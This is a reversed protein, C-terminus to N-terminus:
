PAPNWRQGDGFTVQHLTVTVKKTLTPVNFARCDVVRTTEGGVLNGSTLTSHTRTWQGLNRGFGDWYTFTMNIEKVPRSSRNQIRIKATRLSEVEESGFGVFEADVPPGSPTAQAAVESMAPASSLRPRAGAVGPGANQLALDLDRVTFATALRFVAGEAAAKIKGVFPPMSSPNQRAGVQMMGVLGQIGGALQSAATADACGLDLTIDVQSVGFKLCLIAERVGDMSQMLAGLIANASAGAAGAGGLGKTAEKPVSLYLWVQGRRSLTENIQSRLKGETRGLLFNQLNESRGLGFVVGEKGSGAAFSLTFPLKKEGLVESPVDFYEAAGVRRRSKEIQARVGPKEKDIAELAQRILDSADRAQVLRAAVIFGSNPDFQGSQLDNFVNEGEVAVAIEAMNTGEFEPIMQATRLSRKQAEQVSRLQEVFPEAKDAIAKWIASQSAGQFDAYIALATRPTFVQSPAPVTGEAAIAASPTADTAGLWLLVVAAPRFIRKRLNMPDLATPV